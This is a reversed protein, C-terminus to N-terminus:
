VIPTEIIAVFRVPGTLYINIFKNGCKEYNVTFNGGTTRVPIEGKIFGNKLCYALTSAVIGTGCAMTVAEVGKEYTNVHLIGDEFTVYNVNVGQPAFRSAYRVAIAEEDINILPVSERFRVFHRTGTNLFYDDKGDEYFETVDCMKVCIHKEIGSDSIIEASHFGDSAMFNFSTFGLDKAFAVASRAGNGCMMGGSGDSNFYEMCFNVGSHGKNLLILGDAGIGLHRNCLLRIDDTSLKIEGSLNNIILFDNGAGQYKYLKM